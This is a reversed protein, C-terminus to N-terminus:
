TEQTLHIFLDDMTYPYAEMEAIPIQDALCKKIFDQLNEVQFVLNQRDERWSYFFDKKFYKKHSLPFAARVGKLHNRLLTKPPGQAIVKGQDLILTDDCLAQVEDMYHTTFIITRHPSKISQILKWFLRRSVPDLGATPEDLFLIEPNNILSLALFLRKKQGGSLHRYDRDLIDELRCMQILEKMSYTKKYFSAFLVLAEKVKMYDQLDTSQFQVGIREKYSSFDRAKENFFIDGSTATKIGELIEVLTSKGAGNSGLVGFCIGKKISFSIGRVAHIKDGYKKHLNVIRLCNM